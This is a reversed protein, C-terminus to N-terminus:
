IICRWLVSTCVAALGQNDEFLATFNCKRAEELEENHKAAEEAQEQAERLVSSLSQKEEKLHLFERARRLGPDHETLTTYTKKGITELIDLGGAALNEAKEFGTNMLNQSKNVLSRGQFYYACNYYIVGCNTIFLLNLFGSFFANFLCFVATHSYERM